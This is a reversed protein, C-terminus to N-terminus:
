ASCRGGFEWRRDLEQAPMLDAVPDALDLAPASNHWRHHLTHILGSRRTSSVARRMEREERAAPAPVFSSTSSEQVLGTAATLWHIGVFIVFIQVRRSRAEATSLSKLALSPTNKHQYLADPPTTFMMTSPPLLIDEELGPGLEWREGGNHHPRQPGRQHMPHLRIGTPALERRRNPHSSLPECCQRVCAALSIRHPHCNEPFM